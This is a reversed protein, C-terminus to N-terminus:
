LYAPCKLKNGYKIECGKLKIKSTLYVFSTKRLKRNMIKMFAKDAM